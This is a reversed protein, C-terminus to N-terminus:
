ISWVRKTSYKASGLANWNSTWSRGLTTQNSLQNPWLIVKCNLTTKSAFWAMKFYKGGHEVSNYWSHIKIKKLIFSAHVLLQSALFISMMTVCVQFFVGCVSSWHDLFTMLGPFLHKKYNVVYKTPFKLRSTSQLM